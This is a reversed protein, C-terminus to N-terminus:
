IIQVISITTCSTYSHTNQCVGLILFRNYCSSSSIDQIKKGSMRLHKYTLSARVVWDLLLYAFYKKSSKNMAQSYRKGPGLSHVENKQSAHVPAIKFLIIVACHSPIPSTTNAHYSCASTGWELGYPNEAVTVTLSGGVGNRLSYPLHIPCQICSWFTQPEIRLTPWAYFHQAFKM